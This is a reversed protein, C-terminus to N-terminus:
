VKMIKGFITPNDKCRFTYKKTYIWHIDYITQGEYKFVRVNRNNDFISNTEVCWLENHYIFCNFAHGGGNCFGWCMGFDDSLSSMLISHDECDKKFELLSEVPSSFYDSMGTTDRDRTWKLRDDVAQGWKIAKSKTSYCKKLKSRFKEVIFKNPQIMENPYVPYKIDNYRRKDAYAFNEVVKFKSKCFKEFETDTDVKKLLEINKNQLQLVINQSDELEKEVDFILKNKSDLVICVNNFDKINKEIISNKNNKINNYDQIAGLYNIFIEPYILNAVQKRLKNIKNIKDM